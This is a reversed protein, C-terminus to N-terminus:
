CRPYGLQGFACSKLDQEAPIRPNLDRGGCTKLEDNLLELLKSELFFSLNINKAKAANVLDENVSLNLSKKCSSHHLCALIEPAM